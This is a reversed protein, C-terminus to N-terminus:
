SVAVLKVDRVDTPLFRIVRRGEAAVSAAARKPIPVHSVVLRGQELQWVAAVTGDVLVTGKVRGTVRGLLERRGPAAFRSRDAHSLLLNDYEPLFRVPAPVDPEPRPADPLDFLERGREDRFTLLQPRLREVVERLGTLRSWAAVDAVTAPGFAGFYRVVVDDLSPSSALTRGLWAEATTTVVGGTQGWLGRPPVQVV